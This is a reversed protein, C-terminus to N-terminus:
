SLVLHTATIINNEIFSHDQVSDRSISFILASSAAAVVPVAEHDYDINGHQWSSSSELLIGM